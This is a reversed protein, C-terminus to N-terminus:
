EELLVIPKVRSRFARDFTVLTLQSTEAFAALYADAWAKPPAHKSGTRARFRAELDPPEDLMRVRDDKLWADYVAWAEAQNMVEDGMVAEATLLRLLGLQTFRCFCFRVGAPLSEFWDRAIPHHVHRGHTLAVWVNIDPFLFSTTFGPMTSGCPAPASPDCSRCLILAKATRGESAARTKLRRYMADPIDITTRM